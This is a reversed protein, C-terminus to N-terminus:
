TEDISVGLGFFAGYDVVGLDTNAAAVAHNGAGEINRAVTVGAGKVRDDPLANEAVVGPQLVTQWRGANIDTRLFSQCEALAFIKEFNAVLTDLSMRTSVDVM